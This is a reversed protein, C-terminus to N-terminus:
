SVPLSVTFTSGENVRSRVQVRGGQAEAISRVLSLGLGAGGQQRARARDVRYFRDFIRPLAEEPMGIGTDTVDLEVCHNAERAALTVTGGRQSFKIANDVLNRVLINMQEPNARLPPLREPMRLELHVGAQEAIVGMEEALEHLLRSLDLSVRPAEAGQEVTALALLHDSLRQLYGIEREMQALYRQTLQIDEQGHSQLMEVRLRLSTLPSRLEHAANDVFARQQAMMEQVREAMRNFAVGMRQIERPGSPTVREDLRGAAIQESTTTLNGVPDAIQRALFGSAMVTVLVVVVAIGILSLWTQQVDAYIPAMPTSLQVLGLSQNHEAVIPVAVFLREGKSWEDWRIDFRLAGSSAAAFEPRNSERRLPVVPDSSLVVQLQSSVLTVRGGISQAYSNVLADLSRGSDGGSRQASLPHDIPDRLANAVIQAQLELEHEAQQLRQQGFREGTWVILSGVGLAILGVYILLLRRFLTQPFWPLRNM